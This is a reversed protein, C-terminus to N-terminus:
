ALALISMRLFYLDWLYLSFFFVWTGTLAFIGRFGHLVGARESVETAPTEGCTEVATISHTHDM